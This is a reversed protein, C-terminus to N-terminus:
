SQLDRRRVSALWYEVAATDPEEPLPSTSAVTDIEVRLRDVWAMADPWDTGGSRVALLAERHGAMDVELKGDRLLSEAMILMRISHMLQKRRREGRSESTARGLQRATAREFTVAARRSLFAPALTRLEAGVDTCVEILPSVLVELVTPNAKLALGCFHEVEWSLREPEPGEVSSPPKEFRWFSETPAVYVGRRDVDSESTALGYARSGVVVSLVTRHAM